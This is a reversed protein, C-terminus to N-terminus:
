ILLDFLEKNDNLTQFHVKNMEMRTILSPYDEANKLEIGVLAPGSERSNKKTYEFLTIDDNPGLIESLFDRLAGARQPFNIIFYHKLGEYILSREKIDEMRMIDNNGGSVVCVVTKGVIRDALKDLSAVALAGAPEIVIADENYFELISSCVKGEDVLLIEEFRDAFVSFTIDGVKKVAAGDVFPDIHALRIPYGCKMSEFMAPAGLPEAGILTTTPSFHHFYTAVGAGLGGGGVCCLVYDIPAKLDDLIEKAISGQGEIVKADDFPHVFRKGTNIAESMAADYADDFTDGLLVIDVWEKGHFRVRSVKQAPTTIPMYIKGPISLERCAYAVGQAHNGASACVIGLQREEESLGHMMYFAGRIKFSRVNQLDERKLYINAKYKESLRQSYELPTRKIISGLVDAANEIGEVSVIAEYNIKEFPTYSEM